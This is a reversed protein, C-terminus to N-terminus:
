FKEVIRLKASRARPNEGIEEESFLTAEKYPSLSSSLQESGDLAQNMEVTVKYNQASKNAPTRKQSYAGSILCFAIFFFLLKRM